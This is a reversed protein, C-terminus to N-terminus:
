IVEFTNSENGVGDTLLSEDVEWADRQARDPLESSNIIKYPYTKIRFGMVEYTELTEPDTEFVGTPVDYVKKPAPVDKLAIAEIGYKALSEPTPHIISVGGDDNKFIIVQTM